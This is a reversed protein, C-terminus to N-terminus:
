RCPCRAKEMRKSDDPHSFHLGKLNVDMLRDYSEQSMDLFDFRQKPAVGANNVLGDLRGHLSFSAKVLAERQLPDSIDAQILSFQQSPSSAAQECLTKTEKATTENGAFNILVSCGNRALAICIGAQWNREGGKVLYTRTM